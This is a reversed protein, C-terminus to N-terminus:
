PQAAGAPRSGIGAPRLKELGGLLITIALVLLLVAVAANMSTALTVNV